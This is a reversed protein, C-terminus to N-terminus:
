EFLKSPLQHSEGGVITSFCVEGTSRNLPGVVVMAPQSPSTVSLSQLKSTHRRIGLGCMASLGVVVHRSNTTSCSPFIVFVQASCLSKRSSGDKLWFGSECQWIVMLLLSTSRHFGTYHLLDMFAIAQNPRWRERSGGYLITKPTSYNNM